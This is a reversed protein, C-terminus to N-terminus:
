SSPFQSFSHVTLDVIRFSRVLIQWILAVLSALLHVDYGSLFNTLPKKTVSFADGLQKDLFPAIPNRSACLKKSLLTIQLKLQLDRRKM